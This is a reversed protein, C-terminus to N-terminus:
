LKPLALALHELLMKLAASRDGVYSRVKQIDELGRRAKPDAIHPALLRELGLLLERVREKAGDGAEGLRPPDDKLLKAIFDSRSKQTGKLFEASLEVFSPGKHAFLPGDKTAPYELMRSRLTPLLMGHPLLVVFTTGLQPEEFLKLLAQQAENTVSAISLLFVGAQYNKLSVLQVLERADDIGFKEFRSSWFPRLELALADFESQLGEKYYAHHTLEM